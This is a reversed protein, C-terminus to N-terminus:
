ATVTELCIKQRETSTLEQWQKLIDPDMHVEACNLLTEALYDADEAGDAEMAAFADPAIGNWIQWLKQKLEEM